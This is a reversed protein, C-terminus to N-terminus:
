LRAGLEQEAAEMPTPARSDLLGEEKLQRWLGLPIDRCMHAWNQEAEAPKVAGPIVCAIAPHAVSFQLAASALPTRHRRCVAEIRDVKEAVEPLQELPTYMYMAGPVNGTALVGTAFPPGGFCGMGNAECLPLVADLARTDLLHYPGALLLFDLEGGAVLEACLKEMPTHGRTGDWHELNRAEWNLGAGVAKVAGTARLQALAPYGTRRLEALHAEAQGPPSLPTTHYGHDLDHLVLSDVYSTGLRLLSEHHQRVLADGSYDFVMRMGSDPDRGAPNMVGAAEFEADSAGNRRRAGADDLAPEPVVYKGVKTNLRYEERPGLGDLAVGLRRESRGNGYAPATDYLRVGAKWAAEVTANAAADSTRAYSSFGTGGLGLQPVFLESSGVRRLRAARPTGTGSPLASASM